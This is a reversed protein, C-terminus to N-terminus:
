GKRGATCVPRSSINATQTCGNARPRFVSAPLIGPVTRQKKWQVTRRLCFGDEALVYEDSVCFVSGKASTMKAQALLGEETGYLAAYPARLYIYETYSGNISYGVEAPADNAFLTEGEANCFAVSWTGESFVFTLAGDAGRMEVNDGAQVIQTGDIAASLAETEPLPYQKPQSVALPTEPDSSEETFIEDEENETPGSPDDPDPKDDPDTIVPPTPDDPGPGGPDACACCGALLLLALVVAAIKQLM